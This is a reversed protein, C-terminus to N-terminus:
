HMGQTGEKIEDMTIDQERGAFENDETLFLM